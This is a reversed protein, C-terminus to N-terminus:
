GEGTTMVDGSGTSISGAVAGCDVDGSGTKISGGVNGCSVDGSGTLISGTSKATVSGSGMKISDVDGNVVVSIDGVLDGEQTVGNVVIKSGKIQINDGTYTNGGITVSGGSMSIKM